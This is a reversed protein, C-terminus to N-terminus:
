LLHGTEHQSDTKLGFFAVIFRVFIHVQPSFLGKKCKSKFSGASEGCNASLFSVFLLITKKLIEFGVKTRSQISLASKLQQFLKEVEPRDWYFDPTETINTSVNLLHRSCFF